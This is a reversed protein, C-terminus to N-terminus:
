ARTTEARGFRNISSAMSGTTPTSTPQIRSIRIVGEPANFQKWGGVKVTGPLGVDYKYAGELFMLRGDGFRFETGHSNDKQPDDAFPNLLAATSSRAMITLNDNPTYECRVRDFDVSLRARRRAM